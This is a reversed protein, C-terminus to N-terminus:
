RSFKPQRVRERGSLNQESGKGASYPYDNHVVACGSSPMLMLVSNFVSLAPFINGAM